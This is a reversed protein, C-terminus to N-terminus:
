VGTTTDFEHEVIKVLFKAFEGFANDERQVLEMILLTGANADVDSSNLEMGSRGSVTSGATATTHNGVSGVDTIALTASSDSQIEYLMERDTCVYAIRETSAVRHLVTLDAYNPEFAVIVGINNVNGAESQIIEPIGDTNASGGYQVIDGVYAATSDGTLFTMKQVQGSYPVGQTTRIPTLGNPRDTNAM